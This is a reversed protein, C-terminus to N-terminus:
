AVTESHTAVAKKERFAVNAATAGAEAAYTTTPRWSASTRPTTENMMQPFPSHASIGEM